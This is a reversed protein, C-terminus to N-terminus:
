GILVSSTKPVCLRVLFGQGDYYTVAPFILKYEAERAM